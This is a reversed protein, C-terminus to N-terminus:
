RTASTTISRSLLGSWPRVGPRDSHQVYIRRYHQRAARRDPELLDRLVTGFRWLSPSHLTMEWARILAGDVAIPFYMNSEGLNSHDLFNNVRNKFTDVDLMWGRYPIEIGFQHEEDRESPLPTFTNEGGGFQERLEAGLKLGHSDAGASLLARLIRAAGLEAESDAGDRRHASLDREREAGRSLDLLARRGAADCVPGAASSRWSLVGGPGCRDNAPTNPQSPGSGDNVQVGFLDNEKQYFSYLGGSFSNWGQMLGRMRRHARTIQTRIGRRRWRSTPRSRITIRSTSTTFRRWPFWRRPRFRTCGTRSRLRIASRRRM